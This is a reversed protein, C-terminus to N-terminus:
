RSGAITPGVIVVVITTTYFPFYTNSCSLPLVSNASDDVRACTSSSVKKQRQGRLRTDFGLVTIFNLTTNHAQKRTADGYRHGTFRIKHSASRSFLWVTNNSSFRQRSTATVISCRKCEIRSFM